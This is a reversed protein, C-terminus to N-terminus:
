SPHCLIFHLPTVQPVESRGRMVPVWRGLVSGQENGEGIHWEGHERGQVVGDRGSTGNNKGSEFLKEFSIM